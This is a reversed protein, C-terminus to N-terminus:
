FVPALTKVTKSAQEIVELYDGSTSLGRARRKAIEYYRFAEARNGLAEYVKAKEYFVSSRGPYRETMEDLFRLKQLNKELRLLQQKSDNLRRFFILTVLLATPLVLMAGLFLLDITYFYGM